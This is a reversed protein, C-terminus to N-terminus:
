NQCWFKSMKRTKGLGLRGDGPPSSIVGDYTVLAVVLVVVLVVVLFWLWFGCGFGCGVGCGFVM